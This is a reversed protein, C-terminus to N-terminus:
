KLFEKLWDKQGEQPVDPRQHYMQETVQKIRGKPM